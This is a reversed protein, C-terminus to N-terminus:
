KKGMYDKLYVEEKDQNKLCFLPAKKGIEIM